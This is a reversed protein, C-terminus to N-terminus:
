LWSTWASLQRTRQPVPLPMWLMWGWGSVAFVVTSLMLLDHADLSSLHLQHYFSM